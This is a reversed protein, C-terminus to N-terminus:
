SVILKPEELKRVSGILNLRHMSGIEVPVFNHLLQYRRPCDYRDPSLVTDFRIPDSCFSSTGLRFALENRYLRKIHSVGVNREV